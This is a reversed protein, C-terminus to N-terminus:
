RNLSENFTQDEEPSAYFQGNYIYSRNGNEVEHEIVQVIEYVIPSPIYYIGVLKRVHM